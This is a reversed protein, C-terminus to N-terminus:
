GDNGEMEGEGAQGPLADRLKGRATFLRSHITGERVGLLRAIESVPLDHYYYLIVPLRHKEDLQGVAQWLAARAEDQILEQEPHTPGAREIRLLVLLTHKLRELAKGRRLRKRCANLTITYLWSKLSLEGRDGHYTELAGLATIFADQVVEEADAADFLVSYALRYLMAHHNQIFTDIAATDGSQCRQLLQATNM